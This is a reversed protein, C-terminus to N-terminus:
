PSIAKLNADVMGVLLAQGGPAVRFEGYKAEAWREGEGEKFFWADSVLMWGGAKPTLEIRLEDAAPTEGETAVRLVTAVGQADRRAIVHPRTAWLTPTARRAELEPPLAFRLQMYDGQMLSRPDVPALAVYVPQGTAIVQEKQWIGVSAVALTALASLAILAATWPAPHARAPGAIPAEHKRALGWALVGLLAGALALVGAKTALPWALQYYFAGVVWWAALTACAALRWRQAAALAALLVLVAGLTPVFWAVGALVVAVGAVLPQRLTPWARSLGATAVLALAASVGPMVWLVLAATDAQVGLAGRAAWGGAVAGPVLFTLGSLWALMALTAVAWGATLPQWFAAHRAHPGAQWVTIALWMALLAHCAIWLAGEGRQDGLWGASGLLVRECLVATLAGMAARVWPRPVRWAIGAAVAALLLADLRDPLDRLVGISLYAGGVLLAPVGLQEIFLPLGRTRLMWVAAALMVLAVVYMAVHSRGVDGIMVAVVGALPVAAIWAGLGTLLVVPWPRADAPLADQESTTPERM